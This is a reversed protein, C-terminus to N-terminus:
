RQAKARQKRRKKRSTSAVVLEDLEAVLLFCPGRAGSPHVHSLDGDFVKRKIQRETLGYTRPVDAKRILIPRDTM